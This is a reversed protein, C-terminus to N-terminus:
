KQWLSLRAISYNTMQRNKVSGFDHRSGFVSIGDPADEGYGTSNILNFSGNAFYYTDIQLHAGVSQPLTANLTQNIATANGSSLAGQRDMEVLADHGLRSLQLRGYPDQGAQSSFFSIAAVMLVMLFLSLTADLSFVYGKRTVETTM